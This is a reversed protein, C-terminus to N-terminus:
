DLRYNRVVDLFMEEYQKVNKEILFKDMMLRKANKSFESLVSKDKLMRLLANVISDVNEDVLIGAQYEDVEPFDSIKTLILPAGMAIAEVSAMPHIDSHSTLIFLKTSELLELKEDHTVFGTFIVNKDIALKQSLNKIENVYDVSGTGAIVLRLDKHTKILKAFSHLLLELGKKLDIRSLFLIYPSDGIGIRELIGTRKKIKFNDPVLGHDIRYIKKPDAGWKMYVDTETQGMSHFGAAHLIMQKTYIKDLILKPIRKLKKAEPQLSAMASIVFPVNCEHSIKSFVMGIHYYWTTAYVVDYNKIIQRAVKAASPCYLGMRNSICHIPFVKIGNIEVIKGQSNLLKQRIPAYSKTKEKDYYFVNGDTVALTVEHGLKELGKIIYQVQSTDGAFGGINFNVFLIKM